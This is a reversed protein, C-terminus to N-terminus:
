QRLRVRVMNTKLEGWTKTFRDTPDLVCVEYDKPDLSDILSQCGFGQIQPEKNQYYDDFLVITNESMVSRVCRWDNLITEVSHGGDIFVFDIHTNAPRPQEIFHPLTDRTNGVYLHINAGTGELLTRVTASDPPRKAQETQLDYDTLHEFLDFGYYDIQESSRFISATEIMEVAHRGRYVGIEM